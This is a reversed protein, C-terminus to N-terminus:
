QTEGYVRLFDEIGSWGEQKWWSGKRGEWYFAPRGWERAFEPIELDRYEFRVPMREREEMSLGEWWKQFRACPPCHGENGYVQVVRQERREGGATADSKQSRDWLGTESLRRASAVAVAARDFEREVETRDVMPGVIGGECGCGWLMVGAVVRSWGKKM